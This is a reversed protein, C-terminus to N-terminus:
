LRADGRFLSNLYLVIKIAWNAAIYIFFFVFFGYMIASIAAAMFFSGLLGAQGNLMLIIFTIAFGALCLFRLYRRLQLLMNVKTIERQQEDTMGQPMQNAQLNGKSLGM